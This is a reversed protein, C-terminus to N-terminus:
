IIVELTEKLVRYANMKKAYELLKDINRDKRKLYEKLVEKYINKGLKNRYKTIDCVTKEIDYIRINDEEIFTIGLKFNKDSFYILKIPPYEPLVVKKSRQIAVSYETPILTTLGYYEAATELCIVGKPVLRIIESIENENIYDNVKYLGRKIREIRGDKEMLSLYARNIGNKEVKKTSIYGQKDVLKLIEDYKNM